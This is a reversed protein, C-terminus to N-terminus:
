QKQIKMLVAFSVGVGYLLLVLPLAYGVPLLKNLMLALGIFVSFVATVVLTSEVITWVIGRKFVLLEQRLDERARELAQDAQKQLKFTKREIKYRVEIYERLTKLFAEFGSFVTELNEEKFLDKKLKNIREKARKASQNTKTPM